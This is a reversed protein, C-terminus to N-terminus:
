KVKAKKTIWARARGLFGFGDNASAADETDPSNATDALKATKGCMCPEEEFRTKVHDAIHQLRENWDEFASGCIECTTNHNRGLSSQRWSDIMFPTLRVGHLGEVHQKLEISTKFGPKNTSFGPSLGCIHCSHAHFHQWNSFITQCFPCQWEEPGWIQFPILCCVWKAQPDHYLTEHERWTEETNYRLGCFGCPYRGCTHLTDTTPMVQTLAEFRQETALSFQNFTKSIDPLLGSSRETALSNRRFAEKHKRRLNSAMSSSSRAGSSAASRISAPGQRRSSNFYDNDVAEITNQRRPFHEINWNSNRRDKAFDHDSQVKDPCSSSAVATRIAAM